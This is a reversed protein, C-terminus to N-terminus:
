TGRLKFRQIKGTITKPLDSVFEVAHPYEYRELREKCWRQLEETLATSPSAEPRLVVYAKMRSLGEVSVGVVAAEQVAPHEILANEIEIPSVWLGGVKMMDDVRGEYWYFGDGDVRYWDGTRMWAGLISAKTREHQHWYYAAASDGRVLLHGPRGAPLPRGDDDVVKAEYGPVPKGSSGPRVEGPRNSLFIHLMETTGIGDLIEHGFAEKWRRWVEPPLSEAASVCRRISSLDFKARDPVRLMANYLTPVSFFLTPRHRHITELVAAPTPRESLLVSTAGAWFPFSLNNGLGYAHFLKSSSFTVDDARIGLIHRAYTECTCLIDHQLHVVGKANGTSGSSYLWFAMDDRHTDAAVDMSPSSELVREFRDHGADPGNAVLVDPPDARNGIARVLKERYEADVVIARAYTDDLFFRHDEWKLLPNVPVPVCGARIAGLFAVPFAPTDDLVLLVREERRLGRERLSGAFRCARQLLQGYSVREDRFLIATKDARGAEVNRDLLVSANYREPISVDVDM